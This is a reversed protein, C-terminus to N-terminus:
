SIRCPKELKDFHSENLITHLKTCLAECLNDMAGYTNPANYNYVYNFTNFSPLVDQIARVYDNPLASDINNRQEKTYVLDMLNGKNFTTGAYLNMIGYLFDLQEQNYLELASNIKKITAEKSMTNLKYNLSIWM